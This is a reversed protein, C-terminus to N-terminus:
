FGEGQLYEKLGDHATVVRHTSQVKKSGGLGLWISWEITTLLKSLILVQRNTHESVTWSDLRETPERIEIIKHIEVRNGNHVFGFAGGVHRTPNGKADDWMVEDGGEMRRQQELYDISSKSKQNKNIPSIITINSFDLKSNGIERADTVHEQTQQITPMKTNKAKHNTQFNTQFNTHANTQFNTHANTSLKNSLKNSLNIHTNQTL